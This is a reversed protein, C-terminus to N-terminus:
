DAGQLTLWSGRFFYYIVSAKGLFGDDIGAHDLVSPPAAGRYVKAHERIYTASAVSLERSFGIQGVDFEQQYNRDAVRALSDTAVNAGSRYVLIQSSDRVSCLVAWDTRDPGTFPGSIVNHPEREGMGKPVQPIRCGRRELDHRVGPPLAPFRSPALRVTASDVRTWKDQARCTAACLTFLCLFGCAARVNTLTSRTPQLAPNVTASAFASPKM